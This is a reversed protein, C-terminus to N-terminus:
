RKMMGERARTGGKKVRCGQPHRNHTLDANEAALPMFPWGRFEGVPSFRLILWALALHGKEDMRLVDM